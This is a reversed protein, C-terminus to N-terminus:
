FIRNEKNLTINLNIIFLSFYLVTFFAKYTSCGYFANIQFVSGSTYFIKAYRFRLLAGGKSLNANFTGQNENGHVDILFFELPSTHGDMNESYWPFKVNEINKVFYQKSTIHYRLAPLTVQSIHSM